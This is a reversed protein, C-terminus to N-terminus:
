PKNFEKVVAEFTTGQVDITQGEALIIPEREMTSGEALGSAPFSVFLSASFDVEGVSVDGLSIVQIYVECYVNAPCVYVVGSGNTISLVKRAFDM